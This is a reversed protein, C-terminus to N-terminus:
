TADKSLLSVYDLNIISFSSQQMHQVWKKTRPAFSESVEHIKSVNMFISNHIGWVKLAKYGSAIQDVKNM